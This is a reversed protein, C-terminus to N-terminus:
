HEQLCSYLSLCFSWVVGCRCYDRSWLKFDFRIVLHGNVLAIDTTASHQRLWACGKAEITKQAVVMCTYATLVMASSCSFNLQVSLKSNLGGTFLSLQIPPEVERHEM